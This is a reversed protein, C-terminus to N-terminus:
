GPSPFSSGTTRARAGRVRLTRLEGARRASRARGPEPPLRAGPRLSPEPVRWRHGRLPPGAPRPRARVRTRELHRGAAQAALGGAAGHPRHPEGGGGAARAGGRGRARRAGRAPRDRLARPAAPLQDLGRLAGGRAGRAGRGRARPREAPLPRRRMAERRPRAPARARREGGPPEVSPARPSPLLPRREDAAGPQHHGPDQLDGGPTGRQLRPQAAPRIGRRGSVARRLPPEPGPGREGPAPRGAGAVRGGRARLAGHAPVGAPRRRLELGPQRAPGLYRLRAAPRPRLRLLQHREVRRAAARAPDPDGARGLRGGARRPLALRRGSRRHAERLGDTDPEALPEPPGGRHPAGAM